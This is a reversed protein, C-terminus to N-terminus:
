SYGNVVKWTQTSSRAVESRCASSCYAPPRGVIRPHTFQTSCLACELVRLSDKSSRGHDVKTIKPLAEHPEMNLPPHTEIFESLASELYEVLDADILEPEMGLIEELMERAIDSRCDQSVKPVTIVTSAWRLACAKKQIGQAAYFDAAISWAEELTECRPSKTKHGDAFLHVSYSGSPACSTGRLLKLITQTIQADTLTDKTNDNTCCYDHTDYAM